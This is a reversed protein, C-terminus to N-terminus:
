AFGGATTDPRPWRRAIAQAQRLSRRLHQRLERRAFGADLLMSMATALDCDQADHAALVYAMRGPTTRSKTM